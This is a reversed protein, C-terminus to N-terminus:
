KVLSMTDKAIMLEENTPIILVKVKSSAKSADTLKGRVKNKESDLEVGLFELGHCIKERLEISNEGIGATFVLADVGGLQAAYSAIYKRVRNCFVDLALQARKNGQSAAAEIDRFDSSVGSIGLVGSKKNLVNSMDDASLKEKNMIFPLIAPDLDGSRTGMALGELPTLGMSTDVCKGGKIAALSSGNGLHCTIVKFDPSTNKLTEAAKESVFRHSTGHFGYRRIKYKEYYEYPLAYIYNEAPMTQHFATDFVGVMPTDPMLAKCAEIGMINAPNHLPALDICAKIGAMVRDDLLVSKNFEEGGHVVRHGVATIEDMSKVVGHNKDILAELVLQIAKKHDDMKEEILVADMGKKEHKIRSGEIGIREVLGKVLVDENTMDILQYKLSSSGCNIVLIKM